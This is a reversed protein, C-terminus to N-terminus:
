SLPPPPIHFQSQCLVHWAALVNSDALLHQGTHAHYATIAPVCRRILTYMNYKNTANSQKRKVSVLSYNIYQM